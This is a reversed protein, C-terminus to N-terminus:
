KANKVQGGTVRVRMLDEMGAKGLPRLGEILDFHSVLLHVEELTKEKEQQAKKGKEDSDTLEATIGTKSVDGIIEGETIEEM